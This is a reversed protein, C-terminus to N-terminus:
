IGVISVGVLLYVLFACALGGAILWGRKGFLVGVALAPSFIEGAVLFLMLLFNTDSEPKFSDRHTYFWYWSALWLVSFLVRVVFVRLFRLDARLQDDM